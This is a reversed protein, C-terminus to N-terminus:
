SNIFVVGSIDFSEVYNGSIKDLVGYTNTDLFKVPVINAILTNNNRITLGTFFPCGGNNKGRKFYVRGFETNNYTNVWTQYTSQSGSAYSKNNLGTM